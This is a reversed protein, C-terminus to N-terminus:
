GEKLKGGKQAIMAHIGKPEPKVEKKEGGLGALDKPTLGFKPSLSKIATLAKDSMTQYANIQVTGNDFYNFWGKEKGLEQAEEYKSYECCLVSLEISFSEDTVGRSELIEVLRSFYKKGKDNLFPEPRM